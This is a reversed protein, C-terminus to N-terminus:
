SLDEISIGLERALALDEISHRAKKSVKDVLKVPQTAKAPAAPRLQKPDRRQPQKPAEKPKKPLAQAKAQEKKVGAQRPSKAQYEERKKACIKNRNKAYYERQYRQAATLETNM